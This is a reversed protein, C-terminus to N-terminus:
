GPGDDDPPGIAYRTAAALFVFSRPPGHGTPGEGGPAAGADARGAWGTAGEDDFTDHEGTDDGFLSYTHSHEFWVSNAPAEPEAPAQKHCAARKRRLTVSRPTLTAPVPGRRASRRGTAPRNLM